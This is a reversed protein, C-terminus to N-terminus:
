EISLRDGRWVLLDANYELFRAQQRPQCDGVIDSKSQVVQRNRPPAMASGTRQCAHAQDVFSVDPRAFQRATLCLADGNRTCQNRLGLYQQKVFREGREIGERPDIQLIMQEIQPGIEPRHHDEDSM